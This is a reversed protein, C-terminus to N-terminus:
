AMELIRNIEKIVLEPQELDIDHSSQVEVLRGNPVAKTFQVQKAAIFAQMRKVPWNPPLEVPRAALYTVPVDPVRAVLAKAQDLTRYFEVREQNADQEAMVRAREDKPILQDVQDDTPLSGDLSVLGMVQDPYTGAYMIALLGGFSFGVLLYPGAVGAADLLAHLDRVSDAGTHRGPDSDSRGVNLRDYTCVRVQSALPTNISKIDSGDGGLGHLYVVTPSGPAGNGQCRLHLKHGGADFSGDLEGTAAAQTTAPGPATTNDAGDGAGSCSGLLVTLVVITVIRRM